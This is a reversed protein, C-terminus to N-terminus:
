RTGVGMVNMDRREEATLEQWWVSVGHVIGRKDRKQSISRDSVSQNYHVRNRQM